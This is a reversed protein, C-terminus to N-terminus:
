FFVILFSEPNNGAGSADRVEIVVLIFGLYVVMSWEWCCSCRENGCKVAM